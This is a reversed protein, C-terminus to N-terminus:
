GHLQVYGDHHSYSGYDQKRERKRRAGIVVFLALMVLVVLVRMGVLFVAPVLGFLMSVVLVVLMVAMMVLAMGTVHVLACAGLM